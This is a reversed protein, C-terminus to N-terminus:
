EFDKWTGAAGSTPGNDRIDEMVQSNYYVDLSGSATTTEGAIIIAGQVSMNASLSADGLIFVVGTFNPTGSFSANGNIIMISPEDSEGVDVGCLKNGTVAVNCGVTTSDFAADGEVWIVEGTATQVDTAANAATTELTVMSERYADPTMGFFNAFLEAQTLNGISSDNEIADLGINVKNSSAVFSCTLPTDMCNPYGAAGMDPVYTATSNNSGLDIEGGSWITSFGEQNYVTASGNVVVSGRSIMPNAPDNPLPDARAIFQTITREGSRDDSYGVSTIFFEGASVTLEVEVFGTGIASSVSDGVGDGDTDFIPDISGDDDRDAGDKVYAIAASIGAEAAEFAQKDRASNAAISLEQKAFNVSYLTVSTALVLIIMAFALTAVGQQQKINM